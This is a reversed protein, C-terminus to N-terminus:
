PRRTLHGGESPVTVYAVPKLEVLGLKNAQDLTLTSSKALYQAELDSVETKTDQISVMLEQRLVVHVVSMVIFYGYAVVGACLLVCEFWFVVREAHM